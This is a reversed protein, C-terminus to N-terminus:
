ALLLSCREPSKRIKSALEHLECFKPGLHWYFPSQQEWFSSNQLLLSPWMYKFKPEPQGVHNWCFWNLPSILNPNWNIRFSQEDSSTKKLLNNYLDGWVKSIHKVFRMSCASRARFCYMFSYFYLLGLQTDTTCSVPPTWGLSSLVFLLSLCQKQSLPPCLRGGVVLGFWDLM